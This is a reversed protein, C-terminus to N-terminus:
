RRITFILTIVFYMTLILWPALLISIKKNNRNEYPCSESRVMKLHPIFGWGVDAFFINETKDAGRISFYIDNYEPMHAILGAM